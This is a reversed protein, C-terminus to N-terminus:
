SERHLVREDSGHSSNGGPDQNGTEYGEVLGFQQGGDCGEQQKAQQGEIAFRAREGDDAAAEAQEEGAREGGQQVSWARRGFEIGFAAFDDDKGAARPSTTM